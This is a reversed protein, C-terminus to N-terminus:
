KNFWVNLESTSGSLVFANFDTTCSRNIWNNAGTGYSRLPVAETTDVVVATAFAPEFSTQICYGRQSNPQSGDSWEYDVINRLSATDVAGDKVRFHATSNNTIAQSLNFSTENNACTDTATDIVRLDGGNNRYCTNLNGNSDPISAMVVGTTAGGVVAALSIAALFGLKGTLKKIHVRM